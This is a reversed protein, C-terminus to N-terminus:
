IDDGDLRWVWCEVLVFVVVCVWNWIVCCVIVDNCVVNVM